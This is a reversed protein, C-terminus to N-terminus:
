AKGKLGYRYLFYDSQPGSYISGNKKSRGSFTLRYEFDRSRGEEFQAYPLVIM